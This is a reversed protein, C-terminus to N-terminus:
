TLFGLLNVCCTRVSMFRSEFGGTVDQMIHPEFKAQEGLLNIWGSQLSKVAIVNLHESHRFHRRFLMFHPSRTSIECNTNRGIMM